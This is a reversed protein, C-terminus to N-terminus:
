TGSGASARGLSSRTVTSSGSPASGRSLDPGRRPSPGSMAQAARVRRRLTWRRRDYRRGSGRLNWLLLASSTLSGVAIPGWLRLELLNLMTGARFATATAACLGLMYVAGKVNVMVALVFGWPKRQWLWIAGVILLPIVLSLDLAFIVSTPHGTQVLIPPAQGDTVFGLWQRSYVLGLGLGVLLMFVSVTKVPTSARFKRDLGTTRLNLLGLFLTWISLAVLAAYLMFFRNFAAGFLYFSFNYWMYQLLGLWVLYARSSGRAARLTAVLLLPAAVTLTVFDTGPWASRVFDNDHYLSSLLLGGLAAAIALVVVLVSLLQASKSVTGITRMEESANL